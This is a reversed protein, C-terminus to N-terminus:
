KLHNLADKIYVPVKFKTKALILNNSIHISFGQAFEAKAPLSKWLLLAIKQQEQPTLNENPLNDIFENVLKLNAPQTSVLFTFLFNERCETKTAEINSLCLDYELTQVAAKILISSQNNRVANLNNVRNCPSGTTIGNILDTLKNTSLDILNELNFDPKGGSTFRDDDTLITIKKPLKKSDNSSNFLFIFPYFSIGDVNVIEIRYDELHFGEVLCFASILLEESIGEVFLCSRAFLLQSKTVDLYRELQNKKIKIEEETLPKSKKTDQIIAEQVREKFSDAICFSKGHLIILNEFPVKSTLTPSHSTVFLQSNASTNAEKLFNYLSLQLQPHLHAEPEEILLAFHPINDDIIREKMDSLVTAIYILNNFGLSNQKLQFGEPSITASDHPLYPKIVNVIYDIKSQEIQLGIQNKDIHKFIGGLNENINTRTSIVEERTLLETNAKQIIKKFEEESSKREILRKIVKGLINGRTNLLDRTSDRLAGLYYHQFLRFTNTDARQGEINGTNYTFLPYKKDDKYQIEIRAFDNDSNTTDVVMYEYFAGKQEISLDKFEYAIKIVSKRELTFSGGSNATFREFFDDKSVTIERIPEGLNYLLRIADILASKCFGNEGIIINISPAFEVELHEIGKYNNISIKSLYM